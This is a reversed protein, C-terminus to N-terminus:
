VSNGKGTRKSDYLMYVFMISGIDCYTIRHLVSGQLHMSTNGTQITQWKRCNARVFTKTDWSELTKMWSCMRIACHLSKSDVSADICTLLVDLGVFETQYDTLMTSTSVTTSEINSFCTVYLLRCPCLICSFWVLGQCKWCDEPWKRWERHLM